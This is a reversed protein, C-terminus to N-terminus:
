LCWLRRAQKQAQKWLCSVEYCNKHLLAKFNDKVFDSLSKQMLAYDIMKEYLKKM